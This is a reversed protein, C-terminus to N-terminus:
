HKVDPLYGHLIWAVVLSALNNGPLAEVALSAVKLTCPGLMESYCCVRRWM